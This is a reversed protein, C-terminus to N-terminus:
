KKEFPPVPLTAPLTATLPPTQTKAQKLVAVTPAAVYQKDTQCEADQCLKPPDKFEHNHVEFVSKWVM